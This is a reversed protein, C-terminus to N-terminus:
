LLSHITRASETMSEAAMDILIETEQGGLGNQEAFKLVGDYGFAKFVESAISALKWTPSVHDITMAKALDASEMVHIPPVEPNVPEKTFGINIWRVKSTVRSGDPRKDTEVRHAGVSPYWRHPPKSVTLSDWFRNAQEENKGQRIEGVVQVGDPGGNVEVPIGIEYFNPDWGPPRSENGLSDKNPAKKTWHSIDLNGKELFYERSEWLAPQLIRENEHDLGDTSPEIYILRRGGEEVATAKFLGPKSIFFGQNM